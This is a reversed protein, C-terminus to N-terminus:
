FTSEQRWDAWILLGWYRKLYVGEPRRRHHWEGIENDEKVVKRLVRRQQVALAVSSLSSTALMSLCSGM